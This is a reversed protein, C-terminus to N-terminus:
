NGPCKELRVNDVWVTGTAQDLGFLLYLTEVDKPVELVGERPTWWPVTGRELQNEASWGLNMSEPVSGKKRQAWGSAYFKGRGTRPRLDRARVEYTMLYTGAPPAAIQQAWWYEGRAMTAADLAELKLCRSGDRGENVWQAVGSRSPGSRSPGNPTDSVREVANWAVPQDAGEEFGGNTALNAAGVTGPLALTLYGAGDRRPTPDAASAWGVWRRDEGHRLRLDFRLRSLTGSAAPACADLPIQWVATWRGPATATAYRAAQGLRQASRASAGAETSSKWAGSADGHLVFAEGLGAETIPQLCVEVEAPSGSPGPLGVVAIYLSSGDSLVHAMGPHESVEGVASLREVRLAPGWEGAQVQGDLQPAVVARCARAIPLGPAPPPPPPARPPDRQSPAEIVPWSAREPSEVLGMQEIPLPKFGLALAPSDPRLRYDDQDPNVFRPDAILSHTDWGAARWEEWTGGAPLGTQDGEGGPHWLLNGDTQQLTCDEFNSALYPKSNPRQSYLINRLLINGSMSWAGPGPAEKGTLGSLSPSQRSMNGLTIQSLEGDVFLNNEVTNNWGGHLHIGGRWARYVLNGYVTTDSLYDDLYIGWSFFPTQYVREGRVMGHGVSDAVRNFRLTNRGSGGQTNVWGYIGACDDCELSSHHIYNYEIVHDWGDFNFANYATDHILNHSATNRQGSICIGSGWGFSCVTMEGCHHAYNNTVVNDTCIDDGATKYYMAIAHGGPYGIDNGAIRCFRSGAGMVIGAGGVRQVTCGIISCHRAAGLTVGDQECCELGLHLLSVYEVFQKAGPDGQFVVLSPLVPVLAGESALAGGPPQFWVTDASQDLYWEGPADLEELANQVYFRNGAWIEGVGKSLTILRREADLSAIPVRPNGWAYNPFLTVEVEKLRAWQRPFAGARYRIEAKNGGESGPECYLFGGTRPREPDRNPWRAIVQREGRYFLQRFRRGGLGLEALSCSWVEGQGRRWGTLRRGGSLVPKEGPYAAYSIPCEATGSDEPGFRLPEQLTYTGGCVLVRVPATLPGRAKRQRVADRARGVSAFPGDTRDRRPKALTGSWSDNGNTAVYYDATQKGAEAPEVQRGGSLCGAAIFLLLVLSVAPLLLGRRM